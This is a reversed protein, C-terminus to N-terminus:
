PTQEEQKETFKDLDDFCAMIFNYGWMNAPEWKRDRLADWEDLRQQLYARIQSVEIAPATSAIEGPEKSTREYERLKEYVRRQDCKGDPCYPGGQYSACQAIDCFPISTDITLRKM